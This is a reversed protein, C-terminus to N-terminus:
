WSGWELEGDASPAGRNALFDTDSLPLGRNAIFDRAVDEASRQRAGRASALSLIIDRPNRVLYVAKRTDAQYPRLATASPLSHTKVLRPGPHNEPLGKRNSNSGGGIVPILSNLPGTRVTTVPQKTLYCSLM